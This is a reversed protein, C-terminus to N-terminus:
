SPTGVRPRADRARTIALAAVLILTAKALLSLELSGAVVVAGRRCVPAMM